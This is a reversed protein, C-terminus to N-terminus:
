LAVLPIPPLTSIWTIEFPIARLGTPSAENNPSFSIEPFPKTNIGILYENGYVDTLKYAHFKNVLRNQLETDNEDNDALMGAIKSTYVLGADTRESTSSCSVLDVLAMESWNGITSITKGPHIHKKPYLTLDAISIFDVYKIGALTKCNM